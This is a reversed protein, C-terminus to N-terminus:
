YRKMTYTVHATRRSRNYRNVDGFLAWRQPRGTVPNTGWEIRSQAGPYGHEKIFKRTFRLAYVKESEYGEVDEEQKRSSTGSQGLIDLRVKTPIGTDSPKTKINGDPSTTVEELYIVIDETGKDLLSM